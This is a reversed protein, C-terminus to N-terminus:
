ILKGQDFYTANVGFTGIGRVHMNCAAFVYHLDSIFEPMWDTYMVTGERGSQFGLGAPNYFAATADDAVAAFAEGMGPARAGPSILLFLVASESVAGADPAFIMSALMSLVFFVAFGSMRSRRVRKM